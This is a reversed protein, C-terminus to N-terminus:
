NRRNLLEYKKLYELSAVSFQDYALTPSEYNEKNFITSEEFTRDLEPVQVRPLTPLNNLIPFTPEEERTEKGIDMFTSGSEKPPLPAPNECLFSEVMSKLSTNTFNNNFTPDHPSSLLDKISAVKDRKEERMSAHEDVLESLPELDALVKGRNHEFNEERLVCEIKNLISEKGVDLVSEIAKLVSEEKREVLTPYAQHMAHSINHAIQSFSNQMSLPPLSPSVGSDRVPHLSNGRGSYVVKNYGELNNNAMNQNSTSENELSSWMEKLEQLQKQLDDIKDIMVKKQNPIKSM